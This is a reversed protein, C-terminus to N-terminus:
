IPTIDWSWSLIIWQNMNEPQSIFTETLVKIICTIHIYPRAMAWATLRQSGVAAAPNLGLDPWAPNTTSLTADPCTKKSYKPKGQWENWWIRWRWLWGPCTCYALLHGVNRTSGTQVGNGVICILVFNLASYIRIISKVTWNLCKTKEGARQLCFIYLVRIKGKTKYPHSIQVRVNLSSYLSLTNSFLTSLIINLGFPIFYCSAPSFQTILLKM